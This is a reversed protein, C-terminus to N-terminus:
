CRTTCVYPLCSAQAARWQPLHGGLNEPVHVAECFALQGDDANTADARTSICVVLDPCALRLRGSAQKAQAVSANQSRFRRHMTM